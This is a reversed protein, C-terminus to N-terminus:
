AKRVKPKRTATAITRWENAGLTIISGGVEELRTADDYNGERQQSWLTVAQSLDWITRENNNGHVFNNLIGEQDDEGLDFLKGLHSIAADYNGTVEVTAADKMPRIINHFAAESLTAHVVDAAELYFAKDKARQTAERLITSNDGFASDGAFGRGVHRRKIINEFHTIYAGNTCQMVEYFPFCEWSALGVESNKWIVGVRVTQGPRIDAKLLPAIFKVYLHTDTVNASAVRVKLHRGDPGVIARLDEAARKRNNEETDPAFLVNLWRLLDYNDLPRYKDSLFARAQGDLTRVLRVQDAPAAQMLTNVNTALLDPHEIRLRKYYLSPIGLFTSLQSTAVDGLPLTLKDVGVPGPVTLATVSPLALANGNRNANAVGSLASRGEYWDALAVHRGGDVEVTRAPNLMPNMAQAVAQGLPSASFEIRRTSVLFDRKTKERRIIEAQLDEYPLGSKM